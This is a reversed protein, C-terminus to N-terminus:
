ARADGATSRSQAVTVASVSEDDWLHSEAPPQSATTPRGRPSRLAHAVTVAGSEHVSVVFRFKAHVHLMRIQNKAYCVCVSVCFTLSSSLLLDDRFM